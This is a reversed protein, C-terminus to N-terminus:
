SMDATDRFGIFKAHRPLDIAGVPFHSYKIWRNEYLGRSNWIDQKDKSTLGKFMGINFERGEKDRVIFAGLTGGPVLGAQMSSRKAHGFNDGINENENRMLEEFGIIQAEDDVFRKLKLMGQQKRTSRGFKYQGLASRLILGEYGEILSLREFEEVGVWSQFEGGGWVAFPFPITPRLARMRNELMEMREIYPLSPFSFDDFIFFGFVPREIKNGLVGRQTTNYCDEATADGCILEGDLGNLDTRSLTERIHRNAVPTLSRTMATGDRIVVRIGDLKPSAFLPFVLENAFNHASEREALMPAFKSM